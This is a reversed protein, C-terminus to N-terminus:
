HMIVIIFRILMVGLKVESNPYMPEHLSFGQHVCWLQGPVLAWVAGILMKYSASIWIGTLWWGALTSCCVSQLPHPGQCSLSYLFLLLIVRWRVEFYPLFSVACFQLLLSLWAATGSWQKSSRWSYQAHMAVYIINQPVTTGDLHRLESTCDYKYIVRPWKTVKSGEHFCRLIIPCPNEQYLCAGSLGIM